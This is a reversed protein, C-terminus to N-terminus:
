AQRKSAAHTFAVLLAGCYGPGNSHTGSQSQPASAPRDNTMLLLSLEIGQICVGRPKTMYSATASARCHCGIQSDNDSRISIPSKDTCRITQAHTYATEILSVNDEQEVGRAADVTQIELLHQGKHWQHDVTEVDLTAGDLDAQRCERVVNQRREVQALVM